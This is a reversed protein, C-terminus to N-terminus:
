SQPPNAAELDRDFASGDFPIVIVKSGHSDNGKDQEKEVDIVALTVAGVHGNEIYVSPREAKNWHNVTGDPYRVIAERPDYALGRNIWDHIGDRSTLHYATRTSWSNVVIHYLGGSYWICPDELNPIGHPFVSAGQAKYPGLIGKDSFFIRGDRPVFEFNGDPRLMIAVNSAHWRPEGEVTITGLHEWTGDLGKSTYVECPRTESIVIAYRGDPLTLATVNHGRGSQDNPWCPGQDLYPGTLSDSVAHVAVSGFWGNHGRAESRRSAFMHYKGDSAKIIQGDWYCYRNAPDELGNQAARPLVNTAGWTERSLEGHLPTPLFNSIFTKQMSLPHTGEAIPHGLLSLMQQGYQRGLVRYGAPAFHLHDPRGACGESSIVHATPIAAPLENIIKNMSACAGNQDENVLEGALLPVDEARLNLDKLLNDYIGKVKVPWEKDNTNSEGQHLLIGKIVGDKQALKAMDVLCQYPNGGYANIINTMWTPATSAYAQFSDKNFLEIKCGAVAVNLIGVSINPPLNSVLTRGFYDAPSLGASPRCLPPVAPYWNGKTRGQKPFDVAAQVQFREDVPGKDQAEIGPFGEMNSQGFCLFVFRNTNQATLNSGFLLLGALALLRPTLKM